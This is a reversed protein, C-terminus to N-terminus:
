LRRTIRRSRGMDYSRRRKRITKNILANFAKGGSIPHPSYPNYIFGQFVYGARSYDPPTTHLHFYMHNYEDPYGPSWPRYYGSNSTTICGNENIKEVVAVHGMGDPDYYCAVAGLQPTQGTEYVGSARVQDWWLGANSGPLRIVEEGGSIELWRGFVYCTCNPLGWFNPDDFSRDSWFINLNSYWYRNNLMGQPSLRPQYDPM